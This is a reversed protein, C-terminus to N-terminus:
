RTNSDDIKQQVPYVLRVYSWRQVTAAELPKGDMTLETAPDPLKGVLVAAGTDLHQSLDIRGEYRNLLDTYGRGGAKQHFMMMECIRPVDLSDKQWPTTMEKDIMQKRRTLRYRLNAPRTLEDVVFTQGPELTGVAYYMRGHCLIAELLSVQLPNRIEGVLSDQRGAALTGAETLDCSGWWVGRLRCTAATPVPRGAVEAVSPSLFRVTYADSFLAAPTQNRMGGFGTGPLGQWALVEGAAAVDSFRSRATFDYHGAVPLFFDTWLDCRAQNGAVDLDVIEVITEKPKDGKWSRVLGVAVGGMVCIALPFTFWTWEMRGVYRKLLFYDLPGIWFVFIAALFAILSFPVLRVGPFQGLGARLQGSLDDFGLDSGAFNNQEAQDDLDSGLLESVLKLILRSRGNWDRIPPLDIDCALFSVTGLGHAARVSWATRRKGAGEAAGVQGRLDVLRATVLGWEDRPLDRWLLDIRQTSQAFSQLESAERLRILAAFKGPVLRALPQGAALLTEGHTGVSLLLKGGLSVWSELAEWQAPLLSEVFSPNGTSLFIVDVGDYALWREPLEQPSTVRAVRFSESVRRPRLRLAQELEPDEGLCVILQQTARVTDGVDLRLRFPSALDTVGQEDTFRVQLRAAERGIRILQTVKEQGGALTMVPGAFRCPIGEGDPATIILRGVIPGDASLTVRIPVWCGLKSTGGMGLGCEQISVTAASAM